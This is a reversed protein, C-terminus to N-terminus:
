KLAHRTTKVLAKWLATQDEAATLQEIAGSKRFTESLAAMLRLYFPSVATPIASLFIIHVKDGQGDWDIGEKSTGVALALGGGEVGRVHPFAIGKGLSTSFMAEREMAAAALQEASDVFRNAEMADALARVAEAATTAEIHALCLEEATFRQIGNKAVAAGAAPSAIRRLAGGTSNFLIRGCQLCTQLTKAQRVQQVQAIPLRTGCAACKGAVMASMVIHNRKYLKNFVTKVPLELRATMSDISEGLMHLRSINGSQFHEDRTLILEQLQNLVNIQSKM